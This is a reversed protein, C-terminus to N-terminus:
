YSFNEEASYKRYDYGLSFFRKLDEVIKEKNNM